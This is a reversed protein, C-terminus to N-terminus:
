LKAFKQELKAERQTDLQRKTKNQEAKETGHISGLTKCMSLQYTSVATLM